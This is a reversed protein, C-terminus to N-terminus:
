VCKVKRFSTPFMIYPKMPRSWEVEQELVGKICSSQVITHVEKQIGLNALINRTIATMDESLSVLCQCHQFAGEMKGVAAKDRFTINADTGAIILLFPVRMKATAMKIIEASRTANVGVILSIRFNLLFRFLDEAETLTHLCDVVNWLYVAFGMQGLM